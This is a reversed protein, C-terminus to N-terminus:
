NTLDKIETKEVYVDYTGYFQARLQAFVLNSTWLKKGNAVYAFMEVERIENEQKVEESM